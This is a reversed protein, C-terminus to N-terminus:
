EEAGHDDERLHKLYNEIEVAAKRLGKAEGYALGRRYESTDNDPQEDIVEQAAKKCGDAFIALDTIIQRMDYM